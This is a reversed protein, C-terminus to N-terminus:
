DQEAAATMKEVRLEKIIEDLSAGQNRALLALNAIRVVHAPVKKYTTFTNAKIGILEVFDGQSSFGATKIIKRFEAKKV